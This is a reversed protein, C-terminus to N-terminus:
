VTGEPHPRSGSSSSLRTGFTKKLDIGLEDSSLSLLASLFDIELQKRGVAAELQELRERLVATKHHESELQVVTQVAKQRPGYVEIWKYIASRSVKHERAVGAVSLIKADIQEVKSRKFEPSFTRTAKVPEKPSETKNKM